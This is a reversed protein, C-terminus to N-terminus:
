QGSARNRRPPKRTRDAVREREGRPHTPTSARYRALRRQFARSTPRRTPRGAPSTTLRRSLARAKSSRSSAPSSGSQSSPTSYATASGALRASWGSCRWVSLAMGANDAPLQWNGTALLDAHVSDIQFLGYDVSGNSNVHTATPNWGSEAGAVAVATELQDAPFGAAIAAKAVVVAATDTSSAPITGAAPPACCSPAWVQQAPPVVPGAPPTGGNVGAQFSGALWGAGDALRLLGDRIEGPLRHRAPSATCTVASGGALGRSVARRRGGVRVRDTTAGHV